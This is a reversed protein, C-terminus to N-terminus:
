PIYNLTFRTGSTSSRLSVVNGSTGRASLNSINTITSAPFNITCPQVTNLIDNFTNAGTLTLAGTGSQVLKYFTKGGGAFTKASASSMYISSSGPNVTLNSTTATDFATGAGTCTLNGTGLTLVRVNSNSSNFLGTTLNFGNLDLTGNNFFLNTTSTLTLNDLLRITGGVGNFTTNGHIGKGNTRIEQIGTGSFAFSNTNTNFTGVNGYAATMGASLTLNGYITMGGSIGYFSGTFNELNLNKYAGRAGLNFGDVGSVNVSICKSPSWSGNFDKIYVQRVGAFGSYTFNVVPTGLLTLSGAEINCILDGNGNVNLVGTGFDLTRANSNDSNFKKCTYSFDNLDFTGRTLFTTLAIDHTNTTNRALQVIGGPSDITIPSAITAADIIQTTGQGSMIYASNYISNTTTVASSLTINKYFTQTQQGNAITMANTRASADLAGINYYADFTITASTNLGTNEIIATDQPLPFNNVNVAGGSSLAWATQNWNGGGVLNWYKNAATTFTIGSNGLCDGIRTGTWSVTGAGAINRFDVNSLAALTGNCTITRQTGITDSRVLLNRGPNGAGLTLTGNVTINGALDIQKNNNVGPSQITLNNFTLTGRLVTVSYTNTFSVNYFTLPTSSNSGFTGMFYNSILHSTGANLTLNTGSTGYMYFVWGTSTVTSSGLNITRVLTGDSHIEAQGSINYNQTNFTGGLISVRYVNVLASGLDFTGGVGNIEINLNTLVVGNTTITKTGSTARFSAKYGPNSWVFNTAALTMSGYINIAETQSFTTVVDLGSMTLDNCITGTGINVSYNVGADSAADFIVNDALTPASSGGAGGSTTSWNTTSSSNWTGAGGVWYRDAM